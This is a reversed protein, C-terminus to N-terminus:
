KTFSVKDQLSQFFMPNNEFATGIVVLDAGANYAADIQKKTRIGGGVIIPINIDKRVSEIIKPSVEYKAGSGAELYVCKLGLLEAAKATDIIKQINERSMPNTQSIKQVSTMKGNEILMYGTPIIELRSYRLKSVAEIQKGILYDPNRGSILNLFLLADASESIQNPDGPFIVVPLDTYRKIEKIIKESLQDKVLSGGVFIHTVVTKLIREILTEVEAILIKDPDILVALLKGKGTNHLLDKYITRM